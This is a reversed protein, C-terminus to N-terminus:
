SRTKGAFWNEFRAWSRLATGLWTTRVTLEATRGAFVGEASAASLRGHLRFYPEHLEAVITKEDDGAATDTQERRRIPLEGGNEVSLAPHILVRDARPELLGIQVALVDHSGSCIATAESGARDRLMEADYQAVAVLIEKESENGVAAIDTGEALWQDQLEALGHSVIVGSIPARVTLEDRRQRLERLKTELATRQSSESQEKAIEGAERFIRSKAISQAVSYEAAAIDADLEPNSLEVLIQEAAVAQGDAVHIKRVFGPAAARVISLPEYDIVAALRVDRPDFWYLWAACCALAVGYTRVLRRRNVVADPKARAHRAKWAKRLQSIAYTAPLLCLLGTAAVGFRSLALLLMSVSVFLRWVAAAAGYWALWAPRRLSTEPNPEDLGLAYRRVIRGVEQKALPALNPIEVWDSLAFYGDFRMLPNLNFLLTSVSAVAAVALSTQRVVDGSAHSWVILAVAAIFLELYIGALSVVIRERKNPLRWVSSVDVFPSPMGLIFALGFVGVTGGFRRCALGHATEHVVKLLCWAAFMKALGRWGLDIPRAAIIQSWDTAAIVLAYVTVLTWIAFFERSFLRRGVPELYNLYRTPRGLALRLFWPNWKGMTRAEQRREAVGLRHLSMSADSVVLGADALWKVLTLAQDLTVAQSGSQAAACAVAEAVTREGDLSKFFFYEASGLRFFRNRLADEVFYFTEGREYRLTATVDRRATVIM